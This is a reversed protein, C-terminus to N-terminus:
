PSRAATVAVVLADLEEWRAAFAARLALGGDGKGHMMVNVGEHNAWPNVTVTIDDGQVFIESTPGRFVELNM